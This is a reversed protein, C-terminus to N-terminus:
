LGQQLLRVDCRQFSDRCGFRTSCGWNVEECAALAGAHGGESFAIEQSFCSHLTGPKTPSSALYWHRVALVTCWENLESNWNGSVSLLVLLDPDNRRGAEGTLNAAAAADGVAALPALQHARDLLQQLAEEAFFSTQSTHCPIHVRFTSCSLLITALGLPAAHPPCLAEVM